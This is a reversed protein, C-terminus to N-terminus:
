YSCLDDTMWNLAEMLISEDIHRCYEFDLQGAKGIEELVVFRPQKKVSKKDLTMVKMMQEASIRAPLKLPLGYEVLLCHITRFSAQDLSGLQVSLYSEVLLGIAVAEGHSLSYQTLTELAHGVTHGFNLIRRMGSENVDQEVIEKKISCSDLIARALLEHDLALLHKVHKELYRFHTSDAILGHKIMEVFGNKLEKEPLTKLFHPDLLIKKPQYINGIMNKGYPTNVGNKGGISADIMGVLSTPISFFPIGRCYTSALYGGLDIAVGGGLVILCTDRIFGKEQMQDELQCKIERTKSHEGSPFTLLAADLGQQFLSALLQSGYHKAVVDDSIVVFRSGHEGLEQWVREEQLLGEHLEIESSLQSAPFTFVMKEKM